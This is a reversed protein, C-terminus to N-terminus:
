IAFWDTTTRACLGIKFSDRRPAYNVSHGAREIAPHQATVVLMEDDDFHVASISGQGGVPAKTIKADNEADLLWVTENRYLM